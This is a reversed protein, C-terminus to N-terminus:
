KPAWRAETVGAAPDASVAPGVRKKFSVGHVAPRPVCSLLTLAAGLRDVCKTSCPGRQVAEHVRSHRTDICWARVYDCCAPTGPPCNLFQCLSPQPCATRICSGTPSMHICRGNRRAGANPRGISGSFRGGPPCFLWLTPASYFPPGRAPPMLRPRFSATAPNGPCEASGALLNKHM